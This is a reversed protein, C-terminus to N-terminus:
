IRWKFNQCIRIPYVYGDEDVVDRLIFFNRQCKRWGSFENSYQPYYVTIVGTFWLQGGLTLVLGIIIGIIVNKM